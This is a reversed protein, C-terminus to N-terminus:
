RRKAKAKGNDDGLFLRLAEFAADEDDHVEVTFGLRRLWGHVELQLGTPEEGPRKLECLWLRAGPCFFARDPLGDFGLGKLKIGRLGLEERARRILRNEYWSERRQFPM